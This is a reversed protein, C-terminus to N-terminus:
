GGCAWPGILFLHASLSHAAITYAGLKVKLYQSVHMPIIMSYM